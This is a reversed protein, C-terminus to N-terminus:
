DDSVRGAPSNHEWCWRAAAMDTEGLVDEPPYGSAITLAGDKQDPLLVVTHLKLMSSVQHAAAWLLDDLAGIGALKRSFAYLAATTRARARAVVIQSRVAATLNSVIVAVVFFVSLAVANDPD